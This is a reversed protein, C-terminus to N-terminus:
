TTKGLLLLAPNIKLGNKEINVKSIEFKVEGGDSYFNIGSGSKIMGNKDSIILLNKNAFRISAKAIENSKDPTIYLLHCRDIEEITKYQRVTIPQNGVKMKRAVLELHQVIESSGIVGIVFDGQKSTASWEIYKTFNFIFVAKFKEQQSFVHLHMLAFFLFFIIRLFGKM